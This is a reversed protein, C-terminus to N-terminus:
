GARFTLLALTSLDKHVSYILPCDKGSTERAPDADPRESAFSLFPFSSLIIMCKAGELKDLTSISKSVM